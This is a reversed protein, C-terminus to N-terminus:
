DITLNKNITLQSQLFISDGALSIDFVITDGSVADLIAQRLSGAGSDNTNWVIITNASASHVLTVGFLGALISLIMVFRATLQKLHSFLMFTEGPSTVRGNM